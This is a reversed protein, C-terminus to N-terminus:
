HTQQGLIAPQGERWVDSSVNSTGPDPNSTYAVFWYHGSTGGTKVYSRATGAALAATVQTAPFVTTTSTYWFVADLTPKTFVVEYWTVDSPLVPVTWHFTTSVGAAVTPAQVAPAGADRDSTRTLLHPPGLRYSVLWKDPTITHTRGLIAVMQEVGDARLVAMGPVAGAMQKVSQLPTTMASTYPAAKRKIPFTQVIARALDYPGTARVTGQKIKGYDVVVDAPNLESARYPGYTHDTWTGDGDPDLQYKLVASNSFLNPDEDVTRTTYSIRRDTTTYADAPDTTPATIVEDTFLLASAYATGTIWRNIPMLESRFGEPMKPNYLYVYGGARAERRVADLLSMRDSDDYVLNSQFVSGAPADWDQNWMGLPLDAAPAYITSTTFYGTLIAVREVIGGFLAPWDPGVLQATSQALDDDGTTATLSVRHTKTPTNGPLYDRGIDVSETWQARVVTGFFLLNNTGYLVRILKGRLELQEPITATLTCTMAERHVFMGNEVTCPEDVTISTFEADIDVIVGPDGLIADGIIAEGLIFGGERTALTLNTVDYNRGHAWAERM